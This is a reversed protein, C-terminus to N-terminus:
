DVPREYEFKVTKNILLSNQCDPTFEWDLRLTKGSVEKKVWEGAGNKFYFQAKLFFEEEGVLNLSVEGAVYSLKWEEEQKVIYADLEAAKKNIYDEFGAQNTKIIVNSLEVAAVAKDVFFDFVPTRIANEKKM